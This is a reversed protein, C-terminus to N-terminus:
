CTHGPRRHGAAHRIATTVRTINAKDLGTVADQLDVPVGDGLSAALRLLRREAGSCPLIGADLASVASTIFPAFDGRPPWCTTILLECAAEFPYFGVASARLAAALSPETMTGRRLRSLGTRLRRARGPHGPPRGPTEQRRHPSPKRGPRRGRRALAHPPSGRATRPHEGRDATAPPGPRPVAPADPM